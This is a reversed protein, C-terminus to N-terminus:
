VNIVKVLRLEGNYGRRRLEGFLNDDSFDALSLIAKNGPQPQYDTPRAERVENKSANKNTKAMKIINKNTIKIDKCFLLHPDSYALVGVRM